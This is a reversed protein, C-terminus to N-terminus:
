LAREEPPENRIALAEAMSLCKCPYALRLGAHCRRCLPLPLGDRQIKSKCRETAPRGLCWGCTEPPANM